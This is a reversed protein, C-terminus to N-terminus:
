YNKIIIGGSIPRMTRTTNPYSIPLGLYSRIALYAFAQSEVFDGDVGFNDILKLPNKLAGKARIKEEQKKYVVPKKKPM